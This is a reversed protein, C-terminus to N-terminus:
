LLLERVAHGSAEVLEPVVEIEQTRWFGPGNLATANVRISQERLRKELRAVGPSLGADDRASIEFIEIPASYGDAFQLRSASMPGTLRPSLGYGAVEIQRGAELEAVLSAVVGQGGKDSLMANAAEVRLFQKLQQDGNTAPQWLLLPLENGRAEIWDAALLCGGRLGWVIAPGECNERLWAYAREIDDLWGPWTADDFNGASDGCGALDMQLVLAGSKAMERASLAAMRRSKNMEEAFPHIYLVGGRPEQDPVTALCFRREGGEGLFFPELRM